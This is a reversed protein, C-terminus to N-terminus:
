VYYKLLYTFIIGPLLYNFIKYEELKEIFKDM